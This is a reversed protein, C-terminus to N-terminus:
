SKKGVLHGNEQLCGESTVKHDQCALCGAMRPHAWSKLRAFPVNIEVPDPILM